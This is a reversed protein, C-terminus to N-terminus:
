QWSSHYLDFALSLDWMATAMAYAPLQLEMEAGLRPNRYAVPAVRFLLTFCLFSKCIFISM